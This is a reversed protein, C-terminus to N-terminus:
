ILATSNLSTVQSESPGMASMHCFWFQLYIHTHRVRSGLIMAVKSLPRKSFERRGEKLEGTRGVYHVGRGLGQSAM